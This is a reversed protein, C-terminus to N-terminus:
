FSLTKHMTNQICTGSSKLLTKGVNKPTEYKTCIYSLATEGYIEVFLRHAEAASKKLNFLYNLIERLNCKNPELSSM